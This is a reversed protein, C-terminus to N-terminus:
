RKLFKIFQNYVHPIYVIAKSITKYKIDWNNSQKLCATISERLIRLEKYFEKEQGACLCNNYLYVDRRMQNYNLDDKFKDADKGLYHEIEKPINHALFHNASMATHMISQENIRYYYIYKHACVVVRARLCFKFTTLSDENIRGVPYYINKFLALRYLKGWAMDMIEKKRMLDHFAADGGHIVYEEDNKKSGLLEMKSTHLGQVIDADYKKSYDLLVEICDKSIFDDSDVFFIYEGSAKEIGANRADSLGGNQKHIVLIRKDANAYEDCVEGCKDPSGDDVLIIQINTYTQNRISDICQSLYKEVKYVPVVISITIDGKM